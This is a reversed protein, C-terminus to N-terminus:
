IVILHDPLENTDGQQLPAHRALIRGAESVGDALGEGLRERRAGALVAACVGEWAKHGVKAHIAADAVVEVLHEGPAVMILVGTHGRTQHMGLALFHDVAAARGAEERAFRPVAFAALPTFTLLAGGLVFAGAQVALLEPTGLTTVFALPWPLVLALLAAWMLGFFPHSILPRTLVVVRIEGATGAEAQRIAAAVNAHDTETLM